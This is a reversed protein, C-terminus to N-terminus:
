AGLRPPFDALLRRVYREHAALAAGEAEPWVAGVHQSVLIKGDGYCRIVLEQELGMVVALRWLHAAIEEEASGEPPLNLRLQWAHEM